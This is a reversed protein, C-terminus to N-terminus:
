NDHKSNIDLDSIFTKLEAIFSFPNPSNIRKSEFEAVIQELEKKKSAEIELHAIHKVSPQDNLYDFKEIELKLNKYFTYVEKKCKENEMVILNNSNTFSNHNELNIEHIKTSNDNTSVIDCNINTNNNNQVNKIEKNQLIYSENSDNHENRACLKNFSTSNNINCEKM